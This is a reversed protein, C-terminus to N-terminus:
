LRFPLTAIRGPKKKLPNSKARSSMRSQLGGSCYVKVRDSSLLPPNLARQEECAYNPKDLHEGSCERCVLGPDYTM